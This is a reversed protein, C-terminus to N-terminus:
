FSYKCVHCGFVNSNLQLKDVVYPLISAGMQVLADWESGQAFVDSSSNLLTHQRRWSERWEEWRKEFDEALYQFNMTLSKVLTQLEAAVTESVSLPLSITQFKRQSNPNPRFGLVINGYTNGELGNRPHIMRIYSGLKSPWRDEDLRSAHTMKMTGDNNRRAYGDVTADEPECVIM